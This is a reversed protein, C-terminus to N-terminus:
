GLEEQLRQANWVRAGMGLVLNGEMRDHTVVVVEPRDAAQYVMREILSDASRGVAYQVILPGEERPLFRQPGDFFVVAQWDKEVAAKEVRQLFEEVQPPRTLGLARTVNDGDVIVTLM